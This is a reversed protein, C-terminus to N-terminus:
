QNPSSYAHKPREGHPSRLNFDGDRSKFDNGAHREGHPSRLNFHTTTRYARTATSTAGRAPLTSQFRRRRSAQPMSRRREGHPSRLNFDAGKRARLGEQNPREGHPSRLNFDPADTTCQAKLCDSGTRPAYISITACACSLLPITDSGTRPAYISIREVAFSGDVVDTAGRAPLTSQFADPCRIAMQQAPREGHPSRLNFHPQCGM